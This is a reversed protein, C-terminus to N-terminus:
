VVTSAAALSADLAARMKGDALAHWGRDVDDGDPAAQLRAAVEAARDGAALEAGFSGPAVSGGGEGPRPRPATHTPCRPSRAPSSGTTPSARGRPRPVGRAAADLAAPPVARLLRLYILPPLVRQLFSAPRSTCSTTAAPSCRSRRKWSPTPWWRTRWGCCNSSSASSARRNGVLAGLKALKLSRLVRPAACWRRARRARRFRRSRPPWGRRHRASARASTRPPPLTQEFAAATLFEDHQRPLCPAAPQRAQRRAATPPLPSTFSIVVSTSPRQRWAEAPLCLLETSILRLIVYVPATTRARGSRGARRVALAQRFDPSRGRRNLESGAHRATFLERHSRDASSKRTTPSESARRRLVREAPVIFNM